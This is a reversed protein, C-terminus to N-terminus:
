CIGVKVREGQVLEKFTGVQRLDHWVWLMIDLMANRRTESTAGGATDPWCREASFPYHCFGWRPHLWCASSYRFQLRGCRTPCPLSWSRRSVSPTCESQQAPPGDQLTPCLIVWACAKRNGVTTSKFTYEKKISFYKQSSYSLLWDTNELITRFSALWHMFIGVGCKRLFLRLIVTM